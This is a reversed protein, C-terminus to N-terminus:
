LTNRWFKMTFTSDQLDLLDIDSCNVSGLGYAGDIADHAEADRNSDKDQELASDPFMVTIM